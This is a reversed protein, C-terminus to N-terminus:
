PSCERETCLVYVDCLNTGTPEAPLCRGIRALHPHTDNRALVHEFGAATLGLRDYTEADAWAGMVTPLYDQGDTAVAAFTAGRRDRLVPSMSFALEQCRGGLGDGRVRVSTEGTGVVCARAGSRHSLAEGFMAVAAATDGQVRSGLSVCCYGLERARALAAALVEDTSGVVLNRIQGRVQRYGAIAARVRRGLAAPLLMHEAVDMAERQDVFGPYTLASAVGQPGVQVNDCLILGIAAAQGIRGLLAGGHVLSVAARVKNIRTVDLGSLVLRRCLEGLDDHDLPPRPLALLASSGGSVAFVVLDGPGFSTRTLLECVAEGAALSGAGPFPHDGVLRRVGTGPIAAPGPRNSVVIGGAFRCGAAQHVAAFMEDAAKGVAVVQIASAAAFAAAGSDELARRTLLDARVSRVAALAIELAPCHPETSASM